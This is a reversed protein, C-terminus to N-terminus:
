ASLRLVLRELALWPDERNLGKVMTDVRSLERLAFGAHGPPLRRCAQAASWLILPLPEGEEKLGRLVRIARAPNKACLLDGFQFPTFRSQDALLAQVEELSIAPAAEPRPLFGMKFIEQHAASLNGEFQRTMFGIAERTATLGSRSLRTEIWRGFQTPPLNDAVVIVGRASIKGMWATSGLAKDLRPLQLILAVDPAPNESWQGLVKAGEIGPKGTPLRLELLRRSAFLSGSASQTLWGKWDFHRDPTDFVRESFGEERLLARLLDAAEQSLLPDEGCIAWTGPAPSRQAAALLASRHTDPKLPDLRLQM